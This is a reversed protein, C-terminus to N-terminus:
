SSAIFSATFTVTIAVPILPSLALANAARRSGTEWATRDACCFRFFTIIFFCFSGTSVDFLASGPGFTGTAGGGAGAVGSIGRSSRSTGAKRLRPLAPSGLTYTEHQASPELPRRTQHDVRQAPRCRPVRAPIDASSVRPNVLSNKRKQVLVSEEQQLSSAPDRLFVTEPEFGAESWAHHREGPPNLERPKPSVVAK